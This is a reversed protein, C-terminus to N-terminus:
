PGIKLGRHRRRTPGFFALGRDAAAGDHSALARDHRAYASSPGAGLIARPSSGTAMVEIPASDM